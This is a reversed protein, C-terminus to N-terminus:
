FVALRYAEWSIELKKCSRFTCWRKWCALLPDHLCGTVSHWYEALLLNSVIGFKWTSTNYIDSNQGYFPLIKGTTQSLSNVRNQLILFELILFEEWIAQCKFVRGYTTGCRWCCVVLRRRMFDRLFCIEIVDRRFGCIECLVRDKGKLSERYMQTSIEWLCIEWM